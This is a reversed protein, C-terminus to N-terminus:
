IRYLKLNLALRRDMSVTIPPFVFGTLAPRFGASNRSFASSGSIYEPDGAIYDPTSIAWVKPMM